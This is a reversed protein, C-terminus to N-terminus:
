EKQMEESHHKIIRCEVMFIVEDPLSKNEYVAKALIV